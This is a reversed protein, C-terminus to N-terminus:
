RVARYDRLGTGNEDPLPLSSEGQYDRTRRLHRRLQVRQVRADAGAARGRGPRPGTDHKGGEAAISRGSM